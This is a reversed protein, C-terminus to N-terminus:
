IPPPREHATAIRCALHATRKQAIRSLHVFDNFWAIGVEDAFADLLDVFIGHRAEVAARRRALMSARDVGRGGALDTVLFDHLFLFDAHRAEVCSMLGDLSAVESDINRRSAAVAAAQKRQWDDRGQRSAILLRAFSLAGSLLDDNVGGLFAVHGGSGFSPDSACYSDRIWSLTAGPMFM